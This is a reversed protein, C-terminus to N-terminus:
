TAGDRRKRKAQDNNEERQKIHNVTQTDTAEEFLFAGSLFNPVIIFRPVVRTVPGDDRREITNPKGDSYKVSDFKIDPLFEYTPAPESVKQMYDMNAYGSIDNYTVHAWQGDGATVTITSDPPIRGISDSSASHEKRINLYSTM